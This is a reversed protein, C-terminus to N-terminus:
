KKKSCHNINSLCKFKILDRRVGFRGASILFKFSNAWFDGSWWLTHLSDYRGLGVFVDSPLFNFFCCNLDSEKCTESLPGSKIVDNVSACGSYMM